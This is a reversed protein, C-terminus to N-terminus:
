SALSETCDFGNAIIGSWDSKFFVPNLLFESPMFFVAIHRKDLIAVLLMGLNGLADLMIMIGVVTIYGIAM